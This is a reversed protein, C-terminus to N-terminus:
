EKCWCCFVDELYPRPEEGPREGGGNAGLSGEFRIFFFFFIADAENLLRIQIM